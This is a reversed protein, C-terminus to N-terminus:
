ISHVVMRLVLEHKGEFKSQVVSLRSFVSFSLLDLTMWDLLESWRYHNRTNFLLLINVSDGKPDGISCLLLEVDEWKGCWDNFRGRNQNNQRNGDHFLQDRHWNSTLFAKSLSKKFSVITISCGGPNILEYTGLWTQWRLCASYPKTSTGHAMPRRSHRKTYRRSRPKMQLLAM